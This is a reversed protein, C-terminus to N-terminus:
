TLNANTFDMEANWNTISGAINLRIILILNLLLLIM